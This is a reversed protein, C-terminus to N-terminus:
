PQERAEPASGDKLRMTKPQTLGSKSKFFKYGINLTFYRGSSESWSNLIYDNQMVTHFRTTANLLDFAAISMEMDGKLMKVGLVANLLHVAHTKHDTLRQYYQMDYFTNFIFYKLFRNETSLRSSYHLLRNNQGITNTAYTFTNLSNLSLRFARSFNSSFILRLSPAYNQNKNLNNQVFSPITEYVFQPYVTIKCLISPINQSYSFRVGCTIMGKLNEYTTLMSQAPAIYHNWDPLLTQDLFFLTRESIANQAIALKIEVGISKDFKRTQFYSINILHMYSQTLDHNGAVLRYPNHNDLQDRWQEVSPLLTQTSYIISLNSFAEQRLIMASPLLANQRKVHHEEYPFDESINTAVSQFILSPQFSINKFRFSVSVNGRHTHHDTSYDYTNITDALMTFLDTAFRKSFSNESSFCYGLDLSSTRSIYHSLQWGVVLKSNQGIPGSELVKKLSTSSLSDIRFGEGNTDSYSYNANIIGSLKKIYSTSMVIGQQISYNSEQVNHQAAGAMFYGDLVSTNLRNLIISNDWKQFSGSYDIKGIARKAMMFGFSALHSANIAENKSTDTYERINYQNNPLYLYQRINSAQTHTHHYSYGVRLNTMNFLEDTGWNREIGAIIYEQQTYGLGTVSTSVVDAMRNSSRNINNSWSNISLLLEESFFNGTAGIGYRTHGNMDMDHGFSALAHNSIASIIPNKTRINLVQRKEDNERRFTSDAITYEKYSDISVVESAPLNTLASMQDRGFIIRKNVYTKAINKGLVTIGSENIEVGPIQKLIELALDGEMLKVAAANIRLTDGVMTILPLRATVKAEDLIREKETLNIVIKSMQSIHVDKKVTNFNIHTVTISGKGTPINNFYFKGNYAVTCLTDGAIALQIVSGNTKGERWDSHGQIDITGDLYGKKLQGYLTNGWVPLWLLVIFTLKKM